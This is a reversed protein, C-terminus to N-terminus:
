GLHEKIEGVLVEYSEMTHCRDCSCMDMSGLLTSWDSTEKPPNRHIRRRHNILIPMDPESGTMSFNTFASSHTCEARDLIMKAERPGGLATSYKSM